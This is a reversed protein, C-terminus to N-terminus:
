SKHKHSADKCGSKMKKFLHKNNSTIIVEGILMINDEKLVVKLFDRFNRKTIVITEAKFGIYSIVLTITNKRLYRKDIVLEFNGNFDTEVGDKSGKIWISAGPLPGTSDSVNGKVIRKKIKSNSKENTKTQNWSITIDEKSKSQSLTPSSLGLLGILSFVYGLKPVFSKQPLILDTDLQEKKFRGCLNDGKKIKRALEINSFQTFDYVTKQCSDCFKGTDHDTMESWDESCPKNIKIQYKKM